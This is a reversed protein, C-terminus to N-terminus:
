ALSPDSQYQSRLRVRTAELKRLTEADLSLKRPVTRKGSTIGESAKQRKSVCENPQKGTIRRNLNEKKSELMLMISNVGDDVQKGNIYDAFSVPAREVIKRAISRLVSRPARRTHVFIDSVTHNILERLDVASPIMSKNLADVLSLSCKSWLIQFSIFWEIDEFSETLQVSAHSTSPLTCVETIAAHESGTCLKNCWNLLFWM